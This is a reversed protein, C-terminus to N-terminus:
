PKAINDGNAKTQPAGSLSRPAPKKRSMPVQGPVRTAATQEVLAAVERRILELEHRIARLEAATVDPVPPISPEEIGEASLSVAFADICRHRHCRLPAACPEDDSCIQTCTARFCDYGVGCEADNRCPKSRDSATDTRSCGGGCAALELAMWAGIFFHSLGSFSM